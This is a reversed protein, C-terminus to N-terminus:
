ERKERRWGGELTSSLESNIISESFYGKLIQIRQAWRKFLSYCESAPGSCFDPVRDLL